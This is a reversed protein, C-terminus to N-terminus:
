SSELNDLGDINIRESLSEIFANIIKDRSVGRYFNLLFMKNDNFEYSNMDIVNGYLKQNSVYFGIGYVVLKFKTRTGISLLTLGDTEYPFYTGSKSHYFLECM